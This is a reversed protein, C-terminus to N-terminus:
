ESFGFKRRLADADIRDKYRVTDRKMEYLMPATVVRIPIGDLTGNETKLSDYSYMEGLRTLFDFTFAEDPPVYCVAPYEGLLDDATIEDINPDDWVSRLARKLREINDQSPAIFFDADETNRVLGHAALAIAGFAVYQVGERNMAEVLQLARDFVTV